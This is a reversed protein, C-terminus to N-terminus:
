PTFDSLPGEPGYIDADPMNEGLRIARDVSLSYCSVEKGLFALGTSFIHRMTESFDFGERSKLSQIMGFQLSCMAIASVMAEEESFPLDPFFSLLLAQHTQIYMERLSPINTFSAFLDATRDDFAIFHMFRYETLFYATWSDEDPGAMDQEPLFAEMVLDHYDRVLDEKHPYYYSVNGVALGLSKAIMRLTTKEYGDTLFGRIATNLILNKLDKRM